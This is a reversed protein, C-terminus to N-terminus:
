FITKEFKSARKDKAADCIAASSTSTLLCPAVGRKKRSQTCALRLQTCALRTDSWARAPPAARAIDLSKANCCRCPTECLAAVPKDFATRTRSARIECWWLGVRKWRWVIAAASRDGGSEGGSGWRREGM